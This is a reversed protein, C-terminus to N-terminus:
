KTKDEANAHTESQTDVESEAQSEAQSETESPNESQSEIRSEDQVQDQALQISEALPQELGKKRQLANWVIMPEMNVIEEYIVPKGDEDTAGVFYMGVNSLFKPMYIRMFEERYGSPISCSDTILRMFTSSLVRAMVEVMDYPMMPPLDFGNIASIIDGSIQRIMPAHSITGPIVVIFAAQGSRLVTFIYVGNDVEKDVNRVVAGTEADINEVSTLDVTLPFAVYRFSNILSLREASPQEDKYPIKMEDLTKKIEEISHIEITDTNNENTGM